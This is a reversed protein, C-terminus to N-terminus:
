PSVTIVVTPDGGPFVQGVTLDYPDCTNGQVGITWVYRNVDKFPSGYASFEYVRTLIYVIGSCTFYYRYTDGTDQDTFSETSLFCSDGLALPIAWDPTPGYVLTADQFMGNDATHNNSVLHLSVPTKTCLCGDLEVFQNDSAKGFQAVWRDSVQLAILCDGAAPLGPGLVLVLEQASAAVDPSGASGEVEDGTVAVPHVAFYHRIQSPMSGADYVLAVLTVLRDPRDPRAADLRDAIDDRRSRQIRQDDM